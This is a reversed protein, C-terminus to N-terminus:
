GRFVITGNQDTRYVCCGFQRLRQLLQEAPHGYRNDGVSIFVYQPRTKDLLREGTSKGSGHHGAVLLELEPLETRNLLLREGFDSRDGTILIDCNEQQFLICLSSENELNFNEPGFITLKSNGYTLTLDSSVTICAGPDAFRRIEDSIGYPDLIEPLYVHDASIRTLLYPVGGAHDKDYHTVILGDIRQIGQSLLTESALDACDSDWDGGCDVLFTKGESQLLICQGQGVDLMTVRYSDTWPEMWSAALAACLSVTCLCAFVWVPKKKMLLFIALLAYMGVLWIVIYISETYVAALPIQSLQTATGLVIRIPLVVLWAALKGFFMSGASIVCALIIGYFIYSIFWVILLNTLLSILSITGFHYAVLPVTMVSAGMSVSISTVFWNRLRSLFGKGKIKKLPTRELFWNQIRPTLLFIGIMCGVSLQFSISVVVMPNIVLMTLVAFSLATPPDYERDTLMALLVLAQMICARTVSPSFGTVAAFLFLVPLGIMFVPVRKRGCFLYILSFIISVHLGSVAVIHSIGSVKFATSTEYTIDSRDGLLLAKAFAAADNPFLEEIRATIGKRWVAPYGYLPTEQACEETVDGRQSAILFIGESRRYSAEEPDSKATFSLYFKGNIQDGPKYASDTNLYVLVQYPKGALKMWGTVASGRSTPYSYDSIEVVCEQTTGDMGRANKLYFNDYALFWFVGISFSLTLVALIRLSRVWHTAVALICGCLFLIVALTWSLLDYFYSGVISAGCFGVAFWMLKRLDDGGM